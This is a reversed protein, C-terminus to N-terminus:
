KTQFVRSCVPAQGSIIIIIFADMREMKSAAQRGARDAPARSRTSTSNSSGVLALCPWADNRPWISDIPRSTVVADVESLEVDSRPISSQDYSWRTTSPASPVNPSPTVALVCSSNKSDPRFRYRASLGDDMPFARASAPRSPASRSARDDRTMSGNSFDRGSAVTLAKTSLSAASCMSGSVDDSTTNTSPTPNEMAGSAVIVTPARCALGVAKAAMGPLSPAAGRARFSPPYLRFSAASTCPRLLARAATM